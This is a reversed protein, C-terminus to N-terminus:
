GAYQARRDSWWGDREGTIGSAAVTTRCGGSATIAMGCPLTEPIM